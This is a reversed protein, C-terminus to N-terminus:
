SGKKIEILNIYKFGEELNKHVEIRTSLKEYTSFLLEKIKELDINMSHTDTSFDHWEATKFKYQGTFVLIELIPNFTVVIRLEPENEIKIIWRM